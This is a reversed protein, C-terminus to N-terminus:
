ILVGEAQETIVPDPMLNVARQLARTNPRTGSGLTEWTIFTDNDIAIEMACNAWSWRFAPPHQENNACDIADRVDKKWDKM